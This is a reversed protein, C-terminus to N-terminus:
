TPFRIIKRKELSNTIQNRNLDVEIYILDDNLKEFNAFSTKLVDGVNLYVLFSMCTEFVKEAVKRDKQSIELAKFVKDPQIQIVKRRRNKKKKKKPM